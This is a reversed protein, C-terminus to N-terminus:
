LSGAHRRCTGASPSALSRCARGSGFNVFAAAMCAAVYSFAVTPSFVTYLLGAMANAAFNAAHMTAL